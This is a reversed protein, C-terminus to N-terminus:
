FPMSSSREPGIFLAALGPVIPALMPCRPSATGFIGCADVTYNLCRRTLNASPTKEKLEKSLLPLFSGGMDEKDPTPGPDTM